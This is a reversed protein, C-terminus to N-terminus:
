GAQQSQTCLALRFLRRRNVRAQTIRSSANQLFGHKLTFKNKQGEWQSFPNFEAAKAQVRIFFLGAQQWYMAPDKAGTKASHRSESFQVAARLGGILTPVPGFAGGGAHGQMAMKQAATWPCRCPAGGSIRRTQLTLADGHAHLGAMTDAAVLGEAQPRPHSGRRCSASPQFIHSGLLWEARQARAVFAPRAKTIRM